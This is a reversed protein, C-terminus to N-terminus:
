ACVKPQPEGAAYHNWAQRTPPGADACLQAYTRAFLSARWVRVAGDLGGSALLTGDPSLVVVFIPNQAGTEIPAGVPHRTAPNWARVAGDLSGTVLLKGDPSFAVADTGYRSSSTVHLTAIPHGTGADWLRVTGDGCGAALLKGDRSFAVGYVGTAPGTGTQLPARVLRGTAPNWLRITGDGGGSALLKGDPSFAVGHAGYYASARLTALLHGTAPDLHRHPRQGGEGHVHAEPKVHAIVVDVPIDGIGAPCVPQVIREDPRQQETQRGKKEVRGECHISDQVGHARM